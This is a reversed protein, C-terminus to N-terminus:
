HRVLLGREVARYVEALMMATAGWIIFDEYKWAPAPRTGGEYSFQLSVANEPNFIKIPVQKYQVAERPDM